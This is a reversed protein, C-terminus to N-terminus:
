SQLLHNLYLTDWQCAQAIHPVYPSLINMMAVAIDRHEKQTSPDCRVQFYYIFGRINNTVYLRTQCGLPLLFRAQEKAIGRSLAEQYLAYSTGWNEEQAQQFWYKTDPDIDNISNQRNKTDQRRADVHEYTTAQMYRLSAEQVTFKHRIIQASIARSTQIEFSAYASEFISWHKHRICYDLLRTDQSNQNKPNSVRAMYLIHQEADPTIWQLSVKM